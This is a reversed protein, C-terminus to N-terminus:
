YAGPRVLSPSHQPSISVDSVTITKGTLAVIGCIGEGLRLKLEKMDREPIDMSYRFCLTQSVPDYEVISAKEANFVETLAQCFRRDFEEPLKKHEFLKILKHIRTELANM